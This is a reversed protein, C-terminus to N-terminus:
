NDKPPEPLPMWHTTAFCEAGDRTTFRDGDYICFSMSHYNCVEEDSWKQWVIVGDLLDPLRDKVSIWKDM